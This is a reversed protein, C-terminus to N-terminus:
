VISSLRRDINQNTDVDSPTRRVAAHEGHKLALSVEYGGNVSIEALLLLQVTLMLM